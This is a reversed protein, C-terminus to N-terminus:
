REQIEPHRREMYQYQKEMLIEGELEEIFIHFLKAAKILSKIWIHWYTESSLKALSEDEKLLRQLKENLRDEILRDDREPFSEIAEKALAHRIREFGAEEEEGEVKFVIGHAEEVLLDAGVATARPLPIFFLDATRLNDLSAM